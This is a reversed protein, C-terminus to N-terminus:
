STTFAQRHFKSARIALTLWLTCAAGIGITLVRLDPSTIWFGAIGLVILIASTAYYLRVPLQQALPIFHLGVIIAATSALFDVKGINLLVNGVVGLAVGEASSAIAVLRAIRSREERPVDEDPQRWAIVILATSIIAPISLTLVSTNGSVCVGVIWWVSAWFSVIGVGFM